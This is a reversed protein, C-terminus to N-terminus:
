GCNAVANPASCRCAPARCSRPPRARGPSITGLRPVVYVAGAAEEAARPAGELIRALVAAAPAAGPQSDVFFLQRSGLVRMPEHIQRLRSELRDRQYPSLAPPGELVIM